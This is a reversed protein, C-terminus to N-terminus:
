FNKCFCIGSEIFGYFGKKALYNECIVRKEFHYPNGKSTIIIIYVLMIVMRAYMKLEPSSHLSQLFERTTCKGLIAGHAADQHLYPFVALSLAPGTRLEAKSVLRGAESKIVPAVSLLRRQDQEKKGRTFQEREITCM